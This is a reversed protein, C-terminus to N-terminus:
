RDIFLIRLNDHGRFSSVLDPYPVSPKRLAGRDARLTIIRPKLRTKFDRLAQPIPKLSRMLKDEKKGRITNKRVRAIARTRGKGWGWNYEERRRRGGGIGM